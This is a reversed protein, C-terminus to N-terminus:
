SRMIRPNLGWMPSKASLASGAESERNGEREARSQGHAQEREREREFIIKRKLIPGSLNYPVMFSPLQVEM